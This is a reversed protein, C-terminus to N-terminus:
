KVQRFSKMIVKFNLFFGYVCIPLIVIWLVLEPFAEGFRNIYVITAKDLTFYAEVWILLLVFLEGFTLFLSLLQCCEDFSKRYNM